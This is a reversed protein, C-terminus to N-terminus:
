MSWCQTPFARHLSKFRRFLSLVEKGRVCENMAVEMWAAVPQGLIGM